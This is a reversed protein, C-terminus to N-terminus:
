ERPTKGTRGRGFTRAIHQRNEQSPAQLFVQGTQLYGLVTDGIRVPVVSESLGAYCELTQPGETATEELRQQLQLCAACTKNTQTMLTCFPNARASGQLPTRFSGAERLVLPLGTTAEFARQYERFLGSQQLRVVVPSQSKPADGAPAPPLSAASLQLEPRLM